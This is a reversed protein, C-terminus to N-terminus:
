DISENELKNGFVVNQDSDSNSVSSKEEFVEEINWRNQTREIVEVDKRSFGEIKKKLKNINENKNSVVSSSKTM